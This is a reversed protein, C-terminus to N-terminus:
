AGNSAAVVDAPKLSPAGANAFDLAVTFGAVFVGAGGRPTILRRINSSFITSLM